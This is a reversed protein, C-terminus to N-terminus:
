PQYVVGLLLGSTVNDNFPDMPAGAPANWGCFGGGNITARQNGASLQLDSGPLNGGTAFQAPGILAFATATLDISAVGAKSNMGRCDMAVGYPMSTVVTKGNHTLLGFSSTFSRDSIDIKLAAPDFRVKSYTTKVDTGLSAGGRTYQATNAGTLSLYEAPATAMHACFAKWPKSADGGLYLTYTADVAGPVHAKVDACTAPAYCVFSGPTNMCAAACGGNQTACEDVDACRLGNGAYGRNCTCAPAGTMACTANPDCMVDGCSIPPQMDIATDVVPPQGDILAPRSSFGCATLWLVTLAARGAM